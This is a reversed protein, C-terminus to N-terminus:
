IRQQLIRTVIGQIRKLGASALDELVVLEAFLLLPDVWPFSGVNEIFFLLFLTTEELLPVVVLLLSFLVDSISSKGGLTYVKSASSVILM